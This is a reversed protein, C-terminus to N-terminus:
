SPFGSYSGPAITMRTEVVGSALGERMRGIARDLWVIYEKHRRLNNEYDAENATEIYDTDLGFCDAAAEMGRSIYDATAPGIPGDIRLVLAKGAPQAVGHSSM